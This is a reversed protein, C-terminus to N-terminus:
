ACIKQAVFNGPLQSGSFRAIKGAGPTKNLRLQADKPTRCTLAAKM